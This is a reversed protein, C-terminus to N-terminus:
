LGRYRKVWQPDLRWRNNVSVIAVPEWGERTRGLSGRSVAGEWVGDENRRVFSTHLTGTAREAYYAAAAALKAVDLCGADSGGIMPKNTPM